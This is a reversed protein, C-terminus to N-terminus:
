TGSITGCTDLVRKFFIKERHTTKAQPIESLMGQIWQVKKQTHTSVSTLSMYYIKM